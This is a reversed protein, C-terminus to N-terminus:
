TRSPALYLSVTCGESDSADIEHRVGSSIHIDSGPSLRRDLINAHRSLVSRHHHGVSRPRLDSSQNPEPRCRPSGMM